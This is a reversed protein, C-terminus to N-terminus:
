KVERMDQSESPILGKGQMYAGIGQLILDQLGFKGGRRQLGVGSKAGNGLLVGLSYVNQRLKEDKSVDEFFDEIANVFIDQFNIKRFMFYLPISVTLGAIAGSLASYFIDSMFTNSDHLLM